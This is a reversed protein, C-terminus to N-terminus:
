ADGGDAIAPSSSGSLLQGFMGSGNDIRRQRYVAYRALFDRRLFPIERDDAMAIRGMGGLESVTRSIAEDEFAVAPQYPSWHRAMKLVTEWAPEPETPLVGYATLVDEAQRRIESPTPFFTSHKLCRGVSEIFLEDSLDNLAMWYAQRRLEDTSEASKQRPLTSLLAMGKGFTTKNM